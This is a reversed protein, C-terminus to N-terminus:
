ENKDSKKALSKLTREVLNIPINHYAHRGKKIKRIKKKDSLEKLAPDLSGKPMGLEDLLEKNEVSADGALEAEKAYLKGILYLMVLDKSKYKDKDLIEINGKPTIRIFQKALDFNKELATAHDVTMEAIIKQKLDKRKSKDM